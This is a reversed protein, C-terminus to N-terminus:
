KKFFSLVDKYVLIRDLENLIEHRMGNYLNISVNTLGANLYMKYLKEVGKGYQGVPDEKGAIIFLPLDKRIKLVEKKRYIRNLGKMFEKYFGISSIYNSRFDALYADISEENHSLWDSKTRPNKIQSNYSGFSLDFMLKSRHTDRNKFLCITNAVLGGLQTIFQKGCSGCLIVKDVLHSYQQIFEQLVFSGMSHGLLYVPKGLKKIELVEEYVMQVAKTFGDKPWIGVENEDKANYGQGYHDICYVGINHQNLYYAFEDYRYSSEAMGTVIILNAETEMLCPWFAGNMITGNSLTLKYERGHKM